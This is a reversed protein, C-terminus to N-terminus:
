EVEFEVDKKGIVVFLMKKIKKNEEHKFKKSESYKKLQELGEKRVQELRARESEKLYKLEIIWDFNVFKEYAKNATLFLDIYGNKVEPESLIVYTGEMDLLTMFIVKIYKEDFNILDRNSLNELLGQLYEVFPKVDGTEAMEGIAQTLVEAKTDINYKRRLKEEFYSWYITKVVYNPITLIYNARDSGKITLMGLYYLISIFNEKKTYMDRVSFRSVLKTSIEENTMIKDFTEEDNFKLALEQIKRYDMKVNDDVMNEPYKNNLYIDKLFYLVMDTNYLKNGADKNFLYGNYYKQMDKMLDDEKFDGCVNLKRLLNRTEEETFGMMENLSKEMTLNTTINFGSTLDDLMIPSVGTMFVRSINTVTGDKIAKYFTRVYGESSLLDFYLDQNGQGILDNVFNDYEDIVIFIKQGSKKALETVYGIAIEAGAVDDPLDRVELIDKYVELFTRVKSMVGSDFSEILREKGESTLISAFSLRLVLYGNREKTPNKGIYLDGFLTDFKKKKNIDYYNELMSIFLSKGFRRPRIFFQYRPYTELIEIYNTKDVYLYGEERLEEFNSMGYPIRLKQM